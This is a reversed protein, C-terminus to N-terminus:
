SLGTCAMSRGSGNRRADARDTSEASLRVDMYVIPDDAVWDSMYSVDSSTESSSGRPRPRVCLPRDALGLGGMNSIERRNKRLEAADM